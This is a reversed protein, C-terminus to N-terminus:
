RFMVEVETGGGAADRATLAGGLSSARQGMSRLGYGPRSSPERTSIGPGDDLIRLVFRHNARAMSVTVNRAGAKAANVIAERVIRVINERAASSVVADEADVEVRVGFRLELEDAVHRLAASATPADAASLDAIAGRSIALARRAAIAIPHDEGAESAIRNGHAAIFALDQALGDHLDRALRRREDSAAADAAAARRLAGDQRLAAALILGYAALRLVDRATVWGISPTPLAVFNLRIAVLVVMAAALLMSIGAARDRQRSALLVVAVTLLAASLLSAALGVPAHLATDIGNPAVARTTSIEGRIALGGIGALGAAVLGAAITMTIPNRLHAIQRAPPALAAAAVTASMFLGSLIPAAVLARVTHVGFAAPVAYSALDTVAVSILGPVLLLDRLRRGRRFSLAFLCAAGLACLATETEIVARLTPGRFAISHFQQVAVLSACLVALLWLQPAGAISARITRGINRSRIRGSGLGLDAAGTCGVKTAGMSVGLIAAEAIYSMM